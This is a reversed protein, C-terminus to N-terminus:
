KPQVVDKRTSKVIDVLEDLEKQALKNAKLATTIHGLLADFEADTIKLGAHTRKLDRGTYKIPGGTKSSLWAVLLDEMKKPDIQVTGGRTINVKPDAGAADSAERVLKRAIAEGGVREWLSKATPAAAPTAPKPQVTKRIDDLAERLIFARDAAPGTAAKDLADGVRKQLEPRHDLLPLTARLAGEYLRYCGEEENSKNFLDTGIRSVEYLAADLRTDLEKRPLPDQAIGGAGFMLICSVVAFWRSRPSQM